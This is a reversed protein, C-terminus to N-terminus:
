FILTKEMGIFHMSWHYLPLAHPLSADILVKLMFLILFGVSTLKNNHTGIWSICVVLLICM